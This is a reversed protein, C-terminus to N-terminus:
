AAGEIATAHDHRAFRCEGALQGLPEGHKLRAQTVAAACPLRDAALRDLNGLLGVMVLMDM